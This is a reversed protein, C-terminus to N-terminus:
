AKFIQQDLSYKGPGAILFHISLVLYVLALEYSAGQGVFPDGNVVAHFLFAVLMTFGLGLSALPVLLGLILAIGGGFESFAALLQFVGPIPSDPGMWGFPSQMKPWGHLIFALGMVLRILLLGISVKNSHNMPVLYKKINM